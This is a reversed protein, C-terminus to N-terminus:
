CEDKKISAAPPLKLFYECSAALPSKPVENPKVENASINEIETYFGVYDHETYKGMRGWSANYISSLAAFSGDTKVIGVKAKKQNFAGVLAKM